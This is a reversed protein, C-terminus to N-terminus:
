DETYIFETGWCDDDEEDQVVITILDKSGCFSCFHSQPSIQLVINQKDRKVSSLDITGFVSQCSCCQYDAV